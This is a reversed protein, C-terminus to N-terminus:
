SEKIYDINIALNYLVNTGTCAAFAGLGAKIGSKFGKQTILSQAIGVGLSAIYVNRDELVDTISGTIIDKIAEVKGELEYEEKEEPEVNKVVEKVSEELVEDKLEEMIEEKLEAM